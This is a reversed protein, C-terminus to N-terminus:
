ISSQLVIIHGIYYITDPIPSLHKILWIEIQKKHSQDNILQDMFNLLSEFGPVAVPWVKLGAFHKICIKIRWVQCTVRKLNLQLHLSNM